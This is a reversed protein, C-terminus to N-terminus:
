VPGNCETDVQEPNRPLTPMRTGNTPPNLCCMVVARLLLRVEGGNQLLNLAVKGGTKFGAGM